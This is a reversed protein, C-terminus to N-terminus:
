KGILLIMNFEVKKESFRFNEGSRECAYDDPLVHKYNSLIWIRAVLSTQTSSIRRRAFHGLASICRSPCLLQTAIWGSGADGPGPQTGRGGVAPYAAM